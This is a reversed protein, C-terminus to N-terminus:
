RPYGVPMMMLAAERVGDIDLFENLADDNFAGVAVTGLGLATAQLYINQCISGAEMYAYRYGRDSYKVTSRDFRAALIITVPSGGVAAQENSAIHVQEEYQGESVLELSSDSVQFHYLGDALSKVNSAVVYIDIPYLGGGSPASRMEFGSRTHTIGDASLLLRSLVELDLARDDFSRVSKRQDIASVLSAESLVPRPLKTRPAGAYEKYLPIAQGWYPQEAKSGEDGYSTEFHFKQGISQPEEATVGGCLILATILSFVVLIGRHM